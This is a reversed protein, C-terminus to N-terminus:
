AADKFRSESQSSSEATNTHHRTNSQDSEWVEKKMKGHNEHLYKVTGNLDGLWFKTIYTVHVQLLKPTKLPLKVFKEMNPVDEVRVMKLEPFEGFDVDQECFSTLKPLHKLVLTELKEFVRKRNGGGDDGLVQVMNVCGYLTLLKIVSLHQAVAQSDEEKDDFLVLTLHKNLASDEKTYNNRPFTELMPCNVIRLVQLSSFERTDLSFSLLKELNDLIISELNHFTTKEKKEEKPDTSIKELINCCSIEIKKLNFCNSPLVLSSLSNCNRVVLTELLGSRAIWMRTLRSFSDVELAELDCLPTRSYMGQSIDELMELGALKLKQLKPCPRLRMENPTGKNIPLMQNSLVNLKPCKEIRLFRLDPFIFNSHGSNFKILKPLSALQLDKLKPFLPGRMEKDDEVVQEIMMEKDDEVVQEIMECSEIKLEELLVLKKVTGVTRVEVTELQTFSSEQLVMEMYKKLEKSDKIELKKLKSLEDTLNFLYNIDNEPDGHEWPQCNAVNVRKLLPRDVTGLMSKQIKPCGDVKVMMSALWKVDSSKLSSSGIFKPLQELILTEVQPFEVTIEREGTEKKVIQEIKECSIINLEQLSSLTKAISLSFLYELKNCKRLQLSTLHMFSLLLDKYMCIKELHDVERLDLYKLKSPTVIMENSKKEPSPGQEESSRLNYAFTFVFKPCSEVTMQTLSRSIFQVDGSTISALKPLNTLKLSLLIPLEEVKVNSSTTQTDQKENSGITQTDQKENSGTTQTDQKEDVFVHELLKCDSIDITKLHQLDKLVYLPFLYKLQNCGCVKLHNLLSCRLIRGHTNNLDIISTFSDLNQLCIERLEPLSGDLSEDKHEAGEM